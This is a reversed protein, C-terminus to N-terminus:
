KMDAAEEGIKRVGTKVGMKDEASGSASKDFVGGSGQAKHREPETRTVPNM